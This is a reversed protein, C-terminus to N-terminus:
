PAPKGPRRSGKKLLIILLIPFGVLFVLALIIFVNLWWPADSAFAHASGAQLFLTGLITLLAAALVYIGFFTIQQYGSKVDALKRDLDGLRLELARARQASEELNKTVIAFYALGLQTRTTSRAARHRDGIKGAPTSPFRMGAKGLAFGAAFKGKVM